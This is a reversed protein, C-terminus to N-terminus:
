KSNLGRIWNLLCEKPNKSNIVYEHITASTNKLTRMIFKTLIDIDSQCEELEARLNDIIENKATCVGQLANLRSKLEEPTQGKQKWLKELLSGFKLAKEAGFDRVFQEISDCQLIYEDIDLFYRNCKKDNTKIDELSYQYKDPDDFHTLYRISGSVSQCNDVSICNEPINCVTSFDNIVNAKSRKGDLLLVCHIHLTKLTGDELKDKDHLIVYCTCGKYYDVISKLIDTTLKPSSFLESKEKPLNIVICWNKFTRSDRKESM